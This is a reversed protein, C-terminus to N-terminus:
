NTGSEAESDSVGGKRAWERLTRDSFGIIPAIQNRLSAPLKGLKLKIEELKENSPNRKEKVKGIDSIAKDKMKEYKDEDLIENFVYPIRINCFFGGYRQACKAYPKMKNKEWARNLARIGRRTLYVFHGYDNGKKGVDMHILAHIRDKRLDEKLKNFRPVCLVFVHHKKRGTMAFKLLNIQSKNYWETSLGGLAAEDWCILGNYHEKVWEFMPDSDFYFRDLTFERGTICHFYYLLYAASNTKGTGEDGDLLIWVDRKKLTSALIDLKRKLRTDMKYPFPKSKTQTTNVEKEMCDM